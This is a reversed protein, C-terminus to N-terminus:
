KQPDALHECLTLVTMYLYWWPSIRDWLIGFVCLEASRESLVLDVLLVINLLKKFGLCKYFKIKAAKRKAASLVYSKESSLLEWLSSHEYNFEIQLRKENGRECMLPHRISLPPFCWTVVSLANRMMWEAGCPSTDNWESLGETEERHSEALSNPSILRASDLQQLDLRGKSQAM